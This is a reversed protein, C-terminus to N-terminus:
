TALHIAHHAHGFAILVTDRDAERKKGHLQHLLLYAIDLSVNSRMFRGEHRAEEDTLSPLDTMLRKPLRELRAICAMFVTRMEYTFGEILRECYAYLEPSASWLRQMQSSILRDSHDDMLRAIEDANFPFSQPATRMEQGKQESFVRYTFQV